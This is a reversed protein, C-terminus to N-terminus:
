PNMEKREDETAGNAHLHIERRVWDRLKAFRDKEPVDEGAGREIESTHPDTGDRQQRLRATADIRDKERQVIAAKVRSAFLDKYTGSKVEEPSFLHYAVHDLVVDTEETDPNRLLDYHQIDIGDRKAAGVAETLGPLLLDRIQRWEQARERAAIEELTVEARPTLIPSPFPPPQVIPAPQLPLIPKEADSM